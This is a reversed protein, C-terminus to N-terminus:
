TAAANITRTQDQQGGGGPTALNQRGGYGSAGCPRRAEVGARHARLSQPM